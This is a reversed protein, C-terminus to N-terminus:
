LDLTLRPKVEPRKWHLEYSFVPLIPAIYIQVFSENARLEGNNGEYTTRVDYYIPNHKSYVNYLGIRFTHSTFREPKSKLQFQYNIDLRHNAPLRAGNRETVIEIELDPDDFESVIGELQFSERSLSYAIGSGYRWTATITNNKKPQYILVINGSHRRDYRYPFTRGRNIREDFNRTTKALTYNAWGRLKGTRRSLSFELGKADGVGSSTKSEWEGTLNRGSQYLLLDEMRKLYAGVELEWQDAFFYRFGTAVQYTRSPPLNDTSPVWIDSPLGFAATGLLHVPQVTADFTTQWSVKERVKTTLLLRPSLNFYSKGTGTYWIQARTGVRFQLGPKRLVYEAYGVLEKPEYNFTPLGEEELESIPLLRSNLIQPTFHHINGQFGFRIERGAKPQWQGDFSLGIQKIKSKFREEIYTGNVQSSRLDDYRDIRFSNSFLDLTSYSISVNSFFRDSVLRNWRLAGVTNGWRSVIEDYQRTAYEFVVGADGLTTISDRRESYNSLADVGKYLSLYLRDKKSIQQNFKMNLDFLQYRASGERGLLAKAQSAFRPLLASAWYYRGAVFFSSKGEKIPGEASLSTSLLSTSSRIEYDNLNGDRTHVDLVGALRGGFRTPIGNKYLDVRRLAQSNFISLLGYAHNLNYVPVGDLLILNHSAESGRLNIGGLGDAGTIVGPLLSALRVPDTEGGIEGIQSVETLGIGVGGADPYVGGISDNLATVIIPALSLDRKLELNFSTNERLILQRTVERYGIYSFRLMIEGGSLSVSYFGYENTIVGIKRDPLFINANILREGSEQDTVIGYLTFTKDVIEPDRFLTVSNGGSGRLYTLETYPLLYSLWNELTKEGGPIRITRTPLQDNRFSLRAGKENLSKIAALVTTEGQKLKFSENLPDSQASLVSVSLVLFLILSNLLRSAKQIM